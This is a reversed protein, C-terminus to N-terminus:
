ENSSRYTYVLLKIEGSATVKGDKIYQNEVCRLYTKDADDKNLNTSYHWGNKINHLVVWEMADNM